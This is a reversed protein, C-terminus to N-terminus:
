WTFRGALQAVRAASGSNRTSLIGIYTSSSVAVPNNPHNFVNFFDLSFRFVAKEFNVSKALGADQFWQYPAPIAQNQWPNLGAYTTRAVTGNKLPVWVTNTDWFSSVNTGVPANPPLATSGWPVLPQAANQYNAPVGMIGNPKGNADVSNIKNAPIYGNYWLYGPYCTGSTCDQIPYKDGYVHLPNGNPFVNTSLTAYASVLFGIGSVQWGGLIKDVVKPANGLLKKGRGVPLDAIFNWRVRNKPTGVGSGGFSATIDRHYNLFRNRANDDTPVAGPLYQNTGAVTGNGVLANAMDYFVQYSLGQSFRREVGMEVGNYWAFGISKLTGVNGFISQDYPRTAVNALAGTPPLTGTTAEWIYTPTSSNLNVVASQNLVHNGLYAVRVVTNAMVEKELTMNWDHVMPDVLNPDIRTGTFSGPVLLSTNNINIISSPTNVGAIYQPVSRLGYNPQGDPSLATNTVSNTFTGSLIQPSSFANFLNTTVEPYYSIRYGGRLVFAKSGDLARYAFGLRPGFQKWNTNVMNSPLGAQQYTEFKGGLGRFGAVLSPLTAGHGLYNSIDSGLVYTHNTLDFSMATGEKDSLPTRMEWRLGLDLTLRPSVRWTDQLYTAYESKRMFSPPRQYLGSYNMVGLYLNAIDAGTLPLAQNAAGSAPDYLSTALTSSDFSSSSYTGRPLDYFRYQFGFALEHKSVVKTVNDQFTISDTVLLNPNESIPFTYSGLGSVSINPWTHGAPSGTPGVFPNPLGLVGAYDVPYGANYGSGNVVIDRTGTTQMENTMTPSFTHMWTASVEHNPWWRTERGTPQDHFIPNFIAFQSNLSEFHTNSGYRGYVLDKDSIRHDIRISNADQELPRRAPGIWNPGLAPNIGNTPVKTMAFLFKATPSLRAPDIVNLQGRYQVQQREFTTPNTTAPDYIAIPRGQSDTLGRFDGNLMATTPVNLQQTTDIQSRTGEWSYFWFTRNKGNYVKPISLVGGASLGYENRNLYPAKTFTDQRQRAVGYASNRNDYFLAGHFENTGSRSSMIITTPKSYRASSNNTEVHLEQIADLDPLRPLDWGGHEEQMPNGDMTIFTSGTQLGYSLARGGTQHGHTSYILGPVTQLLNQYGRGLVPMDEIRQRELTSSLTPNDTVLIPTLDAVQVSTTATAVKLAIDISEDTSTQVTLTGEFKQMGAFEGVLRYSGPMIGPFVYLGADNTQITRAINTNVNTLTVSAGPIVAHAEDRVFGRITSNGDQPWATPAILLSSLLAFILFRRM